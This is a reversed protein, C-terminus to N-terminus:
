PMLGELDAITIGPRNTAPEPNLRILEEDFIGSDPRALPVPPPAGNPRQDLYAVIEQSRQLERELHKLQRRKRVRYSFWANALNRYAYRKEGRFRGTIGQVWRKKNSRHPDTDKIWFGCPTARVVTFVRLILYAQEDGIDEYRYLYM